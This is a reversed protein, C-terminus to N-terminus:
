NSQCVLRAFAIATRDELFPGIVQAGIPMGARDFGIPMATAPLNALLAVGPWAIQAGYPTEVGNIRHTRQGFPRADHQFAVVGFTPAIVVDFERFLAAWRRRFGLQADLADMFAHASISTRDSMGRSIATDLLTSFLAHSALLDPLLDSKRSVRAGAADIRAALAEVAAVIESDTEAAPHRTLVLVRFDALREHRPAPLELRYAVEDGNDPGALVSLALDLDEASRALPGQVGLVPPAGDMGAPAHGRGPVLLFSPKHGYIGCFAAPVRISGGIDSGLELPVMGSAVAAAAGGSSGGPTRALDLPNNVRGYVPNDSQWDALWMAVNTKGLIVAGAAKLRAVATADSDAIWAKMAPVGWSTPLGSVNFSEKVTMPLGLLPRRDGRALAADAERATARARDFDRVVVANIAGDLREIREIAEECLQTATIAGTALARVMESATQSTKLALNDMPHPSQLDSVTAADGPRGGGDM